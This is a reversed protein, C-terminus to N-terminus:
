GGSPTGERQRSLYHRYAHRPCVGYAHRERQRGSSPKSLGCLVEYMSVSPEGRAPIFGPAHVETILENFLDIFANAVPVQPRTQIAQEVMWDLLEFSYTIPRITM